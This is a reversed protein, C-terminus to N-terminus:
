NSLASWVIISESQKWTLRMTTQLVNTQRMNAPEM